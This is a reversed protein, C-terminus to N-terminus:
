IKFSYSTLTRLRKDFENKSGQNNGPYKKELLSWPFSSAYYSYLNNFIELKTLQFLHAFQAIHLIQYEINALHWKRMSYRIQGPYLFDPLQKHCISLLQSIRNKLLENQEFALLELGAIVVFLFGNLVKSPAATPYEEIWDLVGNKMRATGGNEVPIFLQDWLQHCINLLVPDKTQQYMRLFLSITLAHSIGSYWPKELGMSELQFPIELRFDPSKLILKQLYEAQKVFANLANESKSEFFHNYCVLGYYAIFTPNHYEKFTNGKNTKAVGNENFVLQNELIKRDNLYAYSLFYPSFDHQFKTLSSVPWSEKWDNQFHNTKQIVSTLRYWQALSKLKLTHFDYPM